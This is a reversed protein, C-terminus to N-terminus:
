PPEQRGRGARAAEDLLRAAGAGLPLIVRQSAGGATLDLSVHAPLWAARYAVQRAWGVRRTLVVEDGEARLFPYYGERFAPPGDTREDRLWVLAGPPLAELAGAPALLTDHQLPGAVGQAVLEGALPPETALPPDREAAGAPLGLAFRSVGSQVLLPEEPAAPTSGLHALELPLEGPSVPVLERWLWGRETEPDWGVTWRARVLRPPEGQLLTLELADVRAFGGAALPEEVRTAAFFGPLEAVAVARLADGRLAELAPVLAREREVREMSVRGARSTHHMALALVAIMLSSLGLAVLLELLTFGRRLRRRRAGRRQSSRAGSM